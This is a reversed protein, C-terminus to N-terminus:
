AKLLAAVIERWEAELSASAMPRGARAYWYGANSDDGEKRHLYAHVWAGERDGAQQALDHAADWQVRADMWLAQLAVSLGAPPTANGSAASQVFEDFSMQAAM